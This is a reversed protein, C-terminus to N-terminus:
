IHLATNKRRQLFSKEEHHSIAVEILEVTSTIQDTGDWVYITGYMKHATGYIYPDSPDDWRDWWKIYNCLCKM